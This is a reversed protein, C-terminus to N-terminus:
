RTGWTYLVTQGAKVRPAVIKGDEFRGEGVAVVLGRKAGKDSDVTEPIYIGAANKTEQKEDIEKLLIRDGLPRIMSKNEEKKASKKAIKKKNKAM